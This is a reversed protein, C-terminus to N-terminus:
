ARRQKLRGTLFKARAQGTKLEADRIREGQDLLDELNAAEERLIRLWEAGSAKAEKLMQGTGIFSVLRKGLPTSKLEEISRAFREPSEEGSPRARNGVAESPPKTGSAPKLGAKPSDAQAELKEKSQGNELRGTTQNESSPDDSNQVVEPKTTRLLFCNVANEKRGEEKRRVIRLFGLTELDKEAQVLTSRGLSSEYIVHGKHCEYCSSRVCNAITSHALLALKANGKRAASFTSQNIIEFSREPAWFFAGEESPRASRADKGELNLEEPVMPRPPPLRHLELARRKRPTVAGSSEGIELATAQILREVAAREREHAQAAEAQAQAAEVEKRRGFLIAERVRYAASLVAFTNRLDTGHGWLKQREGDANTFATYWRNQPHRTLEGKEGNPLVYRITKESTYRYRVTVGDGTTCIKCDPEPARVAETTFLEPQAPQASVCHSQRTQSM